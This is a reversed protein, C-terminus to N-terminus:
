ILNSLKCNNKTVVIEMLGNNFYPDDNEWFVECVAINFNNNIFLQFCRYYIFNILTNINRNHIPEGLDDPSVQTIDTSNITIVTNQEKTEKDKKLLKISLVLSNPDNVIATNLKEINFDQLLIIPQNTPVSTINISSM